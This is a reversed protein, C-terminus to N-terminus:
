TPAEPGASVNVLYVVPKATLLQHKNLIEIEAMSWDGLRVEKKEDTMLKLVKELLTFEELAEKGGVKREVNKRSAEIKAAVYAIDKKM